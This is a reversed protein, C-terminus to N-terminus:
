PYAMLQGLTKHHVHLGLVYYKMVASSCNQTVDIKYFYPLMATYGALLIRNAPKLSKYIQLSQM